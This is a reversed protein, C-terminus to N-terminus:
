LEWPEPPGPPAETTPRGRPQCPALYDYEEEPCTGFHRIVVLPPAPGADTEAGAGTGVGGPVPTAAGEPRLGYRKPALRAAQWKLADIKVRAVMATGPEVAAAIEWVQDFLGDARLACAQAYGRAFAEREHIWRYVTALAPMGVGVRAKALSLGENAMRHLILRAVHPCWVKRHGRASRGGKRRAEAMRKGFEPYQRGWRRLSERAPMEPDRCIELTSEGLELRACITADLEPRYRRWPRVGSPGPLPDPEDHTM